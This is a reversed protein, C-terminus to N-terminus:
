RCLLKAPTPMKANALALFRSLASRVLPASLQWPKATWSLTRSRKLAVSSPPLFLKKSLTLLLLLLFSSFSPPPSLSSVPICGFHPCKIKNKFSHTLFPIACMDGGVSHIRGVIDPYKTTHDESNRSYIHM